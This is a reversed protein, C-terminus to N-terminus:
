KKEVKAAPAPAAAAEAGEKVKTARKKRGEFSVTPLIGAKGLLVRVTDTPQAGKAIWALTKEKNFEAKSAQAVPNYVGIEEVFSGRCSKSEDQVIIRYFPKKKQGM